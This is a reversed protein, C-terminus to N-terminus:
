LHVTSALIRAIIRISQKYHRSNWHSRSSARDRHKACLPYVVSWLNMLMGTIWAFSLRLFSILISITWFISKISKHLCSGSRDYKAKGRTGLVASLCLCISSLIFGYARDDYWYKTFKDKNVRPLSHHCLTERTTFLTPSPTSPYTSSEWLGKLWWWGWEM